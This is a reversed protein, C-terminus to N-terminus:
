RCWGSTGLQRRHRDRLEFQNFPLLPGNVKGGRRRYETLWAIANDSIDIHRRRKKKTIEASLMLVKDRWDVNEWGLRPLEGAPRVGGFFGFVRYPLLGLDNELCDLLISKVIEPEFIETEGSQIEEFDLKLVPNAALYDRKVGYNLVARVYRQFANRVSTSLSVASL